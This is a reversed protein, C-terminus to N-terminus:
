ESRIRAAEADSAGHGGDRAQVVLTEVPGAVVPAAAPRGDTGGGPDQRRRVRELRHGLVPGMPRREIGVPGTVLQQTVGATAAEVGVRDGRHEVGGALWVRGGLSRRGAPNLWRSTSTRRRTASPHEFGSIPRRSLMERRVASCWTWCM